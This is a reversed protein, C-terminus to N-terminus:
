NAPSSTRPWKVMGPVFPTVTIGGDNSIRVTIAGCVNTRYLPVDKVIQEFRKQKGTLTRDNSSLISSPSVARVFGDTTLESSGHHPAILVDAHLLQPSNTLQSEAADQIDGTILISRGAYRIQAVVASDNSSLSESHSPPWLIELEAGRGLPIHQGPEVIRPPIDLADLTRLLNEAPV